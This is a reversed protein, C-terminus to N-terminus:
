CNERDKFLVIKLYIHTYEQPIYVSEYSIGNSLNLLLKVLYHFSISVLAIHWIFVNPIKLVIQKVAFMFM